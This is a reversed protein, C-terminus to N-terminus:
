PCPVFHPREGVKKCSKVDARRRETASPDAQESSLQIIHCIVQLNGAEQLLDAGSVAPREVRTRKEDTSGATCGWGGRWACAVSQNKVIKTVWPLRSMSQWDARM